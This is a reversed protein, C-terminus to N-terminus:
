FSSIIPSWKFGYTAATGASVPCHKFFDSKSKNAIKQAKEFDSIQIFKNLEQFFPTLPNSEPAAM